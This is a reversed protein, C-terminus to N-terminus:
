GGRNQPEYAALGNFSSQPQAEAISMIAFRGDDDTARAHSLLESEWDDVWQLRMKRQPVAIPGSVEPAPRAGDSVQDIQAALTPSFDRVSVGLGKAFEAASQINLPRYASLYQWVMNPSALGTKEAFLAQTFREGRDRAGAKKAEFIARLRAADELQWPELTHPEDTSKKGM